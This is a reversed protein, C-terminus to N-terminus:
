DTDGGVVCEGQHFWGPTLPSWSRRRKRAALLISTAFFALGMSGALLIKDKKM